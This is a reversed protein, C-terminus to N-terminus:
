CISEMGSVAKAYDVLLPTAVGEFRDIQKRLIDLIEKSSPDKSFSAFLAKGKETLSYDYRYSNYGVSSVTEELLKVGVLTNITETLDESYPGYFYSRYEFTFPVNSEYKLICIEKQIRTRGSILNNEHLGFVAILLGVDTPDILRLGM